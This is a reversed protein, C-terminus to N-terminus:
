FLTLFVLPLYNVMRVLAENLAHFKPRTVSNVDDILLSGDVDYFRDLDKDDKNELLDMKSLINIHPIELQIMSSMASMVGAFFKSPDQIFQSDMIYVSVTRYGLRTLNNVLDRMISFHTYLEIQGPKMPKFFSKFLTNRVPAISLWIIMM